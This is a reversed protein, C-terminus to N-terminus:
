SVSLVQVKFSQLGRRQMVFYRSKAEVGFKPALKNNHM